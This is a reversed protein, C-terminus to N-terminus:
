SAKEVEGSSAVPLEKRAAWETWGADYWYVNRYKLLHKLLFYTQSAQHGTRCHVIVTHNKSPILGAYVQELESLPKFTSVGNETLIDKSFDRNVAGPIHGARAEDSKKGSFYDEPRVDLIVADKKDLHFVVERYTVTFADTRQAARYDATKEAPLEATVPRNEAIWKDMGGELLGYNRHGVRELAMGILAADRLRDKGYVLVITDDASLNSLSLKEAIVQSPMLMSPLGKVVGRFSECNFATAGPIHGRNYEPQDRCDIVALGRRGLNEAPWDAGILGPLPTETVSLAEAPITEPELADLFYSRRANIKAATGNPVPETRLSVPKLCINRFGIIGDTLIFVNEYGMRFLTDRAQAPHTMGNSYLVIMRKDRHQKVFEPLDPLQVNVAGRIHFRSYEEGPRVDALVLGPDASMILDALEEPEVHDQANEISALFASAKRGSDGGDSAAVGQRDPGVTASPAALVLFAAAILGPAVIKLYRPTFMTEGSKWGGTKREIRESIYFSVVAALTFFLAFGTKSMGFTDYIFALGPQGYAAQSSVGWRTLPKIFEFVENYLVSGLIAGAMFVLADIKGSAIGVTATGPCWGGMVFGVGFVLGAVVYAGYYSPMFYIQSPLDILGAKEFAILGLMATILATFMVKLVSMDKFYFIGALRRSSGFGARELALGFFFGIVLAMFLAVPSDLAHLGYLTDIM